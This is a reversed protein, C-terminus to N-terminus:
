MFAICIYFIVACRLAGRGYKHEPEGSEHIGPAAFLLKKWCVIPIRFRFKVKM